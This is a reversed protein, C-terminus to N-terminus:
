ASFATALATAFLRNRQATGTANYHIGDDAHWSAQSEAAFDYIRLNPYRTAARKLADNFATMNKPAYASNSPDSTMVTPWLVNQGDLKKMVRDIREDAKVTSGVAINAADNVGMAIVWCGSNGRGLQTDIADIANPEGDVKEVISRGGGADLTVKEVGVREYQPTLRDADDSVKSSSDVGVSTSDGIQVVQKCSTRREGTPTTPTGPADPAQPILLSFLSPLDSSGNPDIPLEQLISGASDMLEGITPEATAQGTTATALAAAIGITTVSTVARRRWPSPRKSPRHENETTVINVTSLLQGM